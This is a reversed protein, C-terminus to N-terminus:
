VQTRVWGQTSGSYVLVFAARNTSITLNSTGGNIKLGNRAITINNSSASGTVDIIGVEDGVSPSGPLTLTVSATTDIFYRYGAAATTSASISSYVYGVTGATGGSLVTIEVIAGNPPAESFTIVNTAIGFASRPQSVGGITVIVYNDSLPTTSLTKMTWAGDGTYSNVAMTTSPLAGFSLVGSGDTKLYQGSTGGTITVNTVAGLNTTGSVTLSTLTGTSTINPQAATTLTGAVYTASVLNAGSLRSNTGSLTINGDSALTVGTLTGVTTIGTQSATKINGYLNDTAVNGGYGVGVNLTVNASNYLLNSTDNSLDGYVSYIGATGTGTGAGSATFVVGITNASAGIATFDTTGVSVIKYVKGAVLLPASVATGTHGFVNTAFQISGNAGAVKINGSINGTVDGVVNGNFYSNVGLSVNGEAFVVGGFNANNAYLNGLVLDGYKNYSIVEGSVTVNSALVFNGASDDWGIFADVPAVGNHYHLLIGRDKNDDGVLAAGNAGGGLEIIPDVVTTVTSNVRTTTGGIILNGSLTLNTGALDGAYSTLYAGANTNSYADTIGYGSTTTPTGSVNTFTVSNAINSWNSTKAWDVNGIVASGTLNTLSVGNGLVYGGTVNGTTTIAGSGSNIYGAVNVGTANVIVVNATGNVSMTIPDNAVAINVNSSGNATKKSTDSSIGTLSAGNGIFYNATVANGLNATSTTSYTLNMNGATLSGSYSSLYAGANTNSYFTDTIGYGTISTPTSTVNSWTVSNATNAWNSTKAWNVNGDVNTGSISNAVNSWNSTKAWDVNGAVNAGTIYTIGVGNATINTVSLTSTTKNFTFASSAGLNTSGNDNFFVQTDSGVVNANGTGSTMSHWTLNGTGDTQLVDGLSGGTIKVNGVAGLSVNSTGIFNVIGTSTLGTLTGLGTITSQTPNYVTGAVLANAVQGSVNAGNTSTLLYGNGSFYNAVALNGLSANGSFLNGTVNANAFTFTDTQDISFQRIKLLSM